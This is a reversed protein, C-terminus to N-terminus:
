GVVRELKRLVMLTRDNYIIMYGSTAGVTTSGYHATADFIVGLAGFYCRRLEKVLTSSNLLLPSPYEALAFSWHLSEVTSLLKQPIWEGCIRSETDVDNDLDIEYGAVWDSENEGDSLAEWHDEFVEWDYFTQDIRESIAVELITEFDSEELMNLEEAQIPLLPDRDFEARKKRIFYQGVM